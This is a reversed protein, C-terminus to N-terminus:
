SDTAKADDEGMIVNITEQAMTVNISEDPTIGVICSQHPGHYSTKIPAPGLGNRNILERMLEANSYDALTKAKSM